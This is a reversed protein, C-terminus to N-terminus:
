SARCTLSRLVSAGTTAWLCVIAVRRVPVRAMVAASGRGPWRESASSRMWRCEPVCQGPSDAVLLPCPKVARPVQPQPGPRRRNQRLRRHPQRDRRRGPGQAPPPPHPDPPRPRSARRALRPRPRHVPGLPPWSTGSSSWSRGAAACMAKTGGLRRTLPPAARRPLDRHERHRQRGPRLVDQPLRRGRSPKRQRPGSQRAVPALGAWSVLHDATPFRAMDLGTEAIIERAIRLSVGPIEALREAAPLVAAGPGPDASPVGDATVGWAAPIADLAASIEDEIEAALRDLLTIHDMHLPDAGLNTVLDRRTAELETDPMARVHGASNREHMM